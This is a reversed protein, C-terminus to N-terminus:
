EGPKGPAIKLNVSNTVIVGSLGFCGYLTLEFKGETPGISLDSLVNQHNFGSLELVEIGEMNFTVVAHKDMVFHGQPAIEKTTRWVHVKLWSTAKRALHLEIVEADHFSPWFGFWDFVQKAGPISSRIWEYNEM